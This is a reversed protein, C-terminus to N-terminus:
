VEKKINQALLAQQQRFYKMYRISDEDKGLLLDIARIVGTM